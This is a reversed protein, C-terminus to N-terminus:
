DRTFERNNVTSSSSDVETQRQNTTSEKSSNSHSTTPNAGSSPVEAVSTPSSSSPPAGASPNDNTTLSGHGPPPGPPPAFTEATTSRPPPGLPRSINGLDDESIEDHTPLENIPIGDANTSSRTHTPNPHDVVSSDNNFQFPTSMKANPNAHFTGNNDYYGMDQDNAQESYTPVYSDPMGEDRRRPQNYQSQSQIYSPPTMWRTGYIPQLGNSGRKKNVRIMGIMALLIIAIFIAFFAWRAGENSSWLDRKDISREVIEEVGKLQLERRIKPLIVGM